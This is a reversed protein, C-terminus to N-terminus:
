RMMACCSGSGSVYVFGNANVGVDCRSTYGATSGFFGSMLALPLDTSIVPPLRPIPLTIIETGSGSHAETASPWIYPTAIWHAMAPAEATIMVPRSTLLSSSTDLAILFAAVFGFM